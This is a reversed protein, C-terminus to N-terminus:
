ERCRRSIAAGALGPAVYALWDALRLWGKLTDPIGWRYGSVMHAPRTWSLRGDRSKGSFRRVSCYKSLRESVRRLALSM